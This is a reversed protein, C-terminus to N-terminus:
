DAKEPKPMVCWNTELVNDKKVAVVDYRKGYDFKVGCKAPDTAHWVKAPDPIDDSASRLVRFITAQRPAASLGDEGLTVEADSAIGIFSVLSEEDVAECSCLSYPNLKRPSRFEGSPSSQLLLALATEIIM